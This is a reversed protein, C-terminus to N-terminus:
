WKRFLNNLTNQWYTSIVKPKVCIKKDQRLADRVWAVGGLEETIMGVKVKIPKEYRSSFKPADNVPKVYTESM